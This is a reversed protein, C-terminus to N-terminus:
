RPAQFVPGLFISLGSSITKRLSVVLTVEVEHVDGTGAPRATGKEPHSSSRETSSNRGLLQDTGNAPGSPGEGLTVYDSELM